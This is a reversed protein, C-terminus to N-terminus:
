RTAFPGTPLTPTGWDGPSRPPRQSRDSRLGRTLAYVNSVVLAAFLILLTTM